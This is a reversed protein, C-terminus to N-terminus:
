KDDRSKKRGTATKAGTSPRTLHVQRGASSGVLMSDPVRNTSRSEARPGGIKASIRGPQTHASAYLQGSLRLPPLPTFNM